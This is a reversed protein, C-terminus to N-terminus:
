FQNQNNIQRKIPLETEPTLKIEMGESLAAPNAARGGQLREGEEQQSKFSTTTLV